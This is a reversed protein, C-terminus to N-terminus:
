KYARDFYTRGKDTLSIVIEGDADWSVEILGNNILDKLAKAYAPNNFDKLTM